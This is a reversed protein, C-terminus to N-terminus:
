DNEEGQSVYTFLFTFATGSIECIERTSIGGQLCQDLEECGTGLKEKSHLMNRRHFDM